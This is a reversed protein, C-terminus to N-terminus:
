SFLDEKGFNLLVDYQPFALRTSIHNKTKGDSM